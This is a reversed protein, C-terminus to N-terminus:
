SEHQAELQRAPLSRRVPKTPAKSSIVNAEESPPNEVRIQVGAVMVWRPMGGSACLSAPM